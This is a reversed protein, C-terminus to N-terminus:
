FATLHEDGEKILLLHYAGCLDIKSSITAGQFVMLLHAMPPIPYWNKRTVANLKCYDMCMRLSKDKKKVFIVPSGTSTSSTQIFGKEVNDAIYAKLTALEENSLSYIPGVPPIPGELKIHHDCARHPPILDAKVKSFIDLYDHYAKPVVKSVTEIEEEEELDEFDEWSYSIGTPDTSQPSLNLSRLFAQQPSNSVQDLDEDQFVAAKFM